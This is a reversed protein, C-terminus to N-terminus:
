SLVAFLKRMMGFGDNQHHKLHRELAGVVGEKLANDQRSKCLLLEVGLLWEGAFDDLLQNDRLQIRSHTRHLFPRSRYEDLLPSKLGHFDKERRPREAILKDVFVGGEVLKKVEYTKDRVSKRAWKPMLFQGTDGKGPLYIFFGVIDEGVGIRRREATVLSSNIKSGGASFAFRRGGTNGNTLGEGAEGTYTEFLRVSPVRPFAIAAALAAKSANFEVSGLGFKTSTAVDLPTM